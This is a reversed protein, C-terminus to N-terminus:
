MIADDDSAVVQRIQAIDIRSLHIHQQHRKWRLRIYVLSALVLRALPAENRAPYALAHILGAIIHHQEVCIIEDVTLQHSVDGSMVIASTVNNVFSVDVVPGGFQQTPPVTLKCM